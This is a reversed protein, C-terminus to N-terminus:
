ESIMRHSPSESGVVLINISCILLTSSSCALSMSSKSVLTLQRSANIIPIRLRYSERGRGRKRQVVALVSRERDKLPAGADSLEEIM